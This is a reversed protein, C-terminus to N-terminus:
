GGIKNTLGDLLVVSPKYIIAEAESMQCYTCIIILDGAQVLRAAAGNLCVENEMEVPVAYTSFRAGNNVNYIEVREYQLINAAKLLNRDIFISGEYNLNSNTVVARHIKSKLLTLLM